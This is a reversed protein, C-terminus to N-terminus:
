QTTVLEIAKALRVPRATYRLARVINAHGALLLISAATLDHVAARARRPPGSGPRRRGHDGGPARGGARPRGRTPQVPALDPAHGGTPPGPLTDVLRARGDVLVHWTVHEPGTLEITVAAGDPAAARKGVIYGLADAAEALAVAACPGDGHGPMGVADRIDQEHMWCDFVRSACSRGYIGPGAPTWSPGDFEEASMTELAADRTATITGRPSGSRTRHGAPGMQRATAAYAVRTTTFALRSPKRGTRWRTWSNPSFGTQRGGLMGEEESTLPLEAGYGPELIVVTPM